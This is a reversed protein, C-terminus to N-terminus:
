DDIDEKTMVYACSNKTCCNIEHNKCQSYTCLYRGCHKCEEEEVYLDRWDTM